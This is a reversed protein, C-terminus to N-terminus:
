IIFSMKKFFIIWCSFKYARLLKWTESSACSTRKSNTKHTIFNHFYLYSTWFRSTHYILQEDDCRHSRSRAVRHVNIAWTNCICVQILNTILMPLMSLPFRLINFLSLSVFAKTADLNNAPDVLVYTAFTTLAVQYSWGFHTACCQITFM